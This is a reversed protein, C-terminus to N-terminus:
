IIVERLIKISSDEETVPSTLTVIAKSNGDKQVLFKQNLGDTPCIADKDVLMLYSSITFSPYLQQLVWKQFAIDAIYPQWKKTAMKSEDKKSISKAKVEIIKIHGPTKQLIDARLFYNQYQFSAEFVTISDRQILLQTKNLAETTSSSEISIGDPFYCRALAEVQAGGEALAKLFSDDDLINAYEDPRDYYWLKTPCELAM